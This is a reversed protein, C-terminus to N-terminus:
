WMAIRCAIRQADVAREGAGRLAFVRRSMRIPMASRWLLWAAAIACYYVIVVFVSAPALRYTLRPVFRVLDASWMLGAAGVHGLWGAAAALTGSALALPVVILGAVQALGMLPIAIVNLGLGAFTVRSFFAIGIPFLMAEAATSAAIMMVLPRTARVALAS